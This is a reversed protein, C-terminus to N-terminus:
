LAELRFVLVMRSPDGLVLISGGIFDISHRYEAPIWLLNKNQYMVWAGDESICLSERGNQNFCPLTHLPRKCSLPTTLLPTIDFTGIPTVLGTDSENFSVTSISGDASLTAHCRSTSIDYIKIINSGPTLGRQQSLLVLYQDNSSIAGFSFEHFGLLAIRYGSATDWIEVHACTTTALRKGSPSFFLRRFSYSFYKFALLGLSLFDIAKDDLRFIYCNDGSIFALRRCDSTFAICRDSIAQMDLMLPLPRSMQPNRSNLERHTTATDDDIIDWVQAIKDTSVFALRQGDPSIYHYLYTKEDYDLTMLCQCSKVDWVKLVDRSVMCVREGNNSAFELLIVEYSAKSYGQDKITQGVQSGTETDWVTITVVVPKGDYESPSHFFQGFYRGDSSFKCHHVRETTHITVKELGTAVDRITCTRSSHEWVAIKQNNMSTSSMAYKSERSAWSWSQQVHRLDWLKIINVYESRSALLQCNPPPISIYNTELGILWMRMEMLKTGQLDFVKWEDGKALLISGGDSSFTFLITGWSGRSRSKFRRLSVFLSFGLKRLVSYALSRLQDFPDHTQFGLKHLSGTHFDYLFYEGKLYATEIAVTHGSLSFTAATIAARFKLQKHLRRQNCYTDWIYISGDECMLLVNQTSDPRFTAALVTNDSDFTACCSATTIDWVMTVAWKFGQSSSLLYRRDPSFSFSTELYQKGSNHLVSILAYSGVTVNWIRIVRDQSASALLCGDHSYALSNVTGSNAEFTAWCSYTRIDWIKITGDASASALYQGDPSFIFVNIKDTHGELSTQHGSWYQRRPSELTIWDPQDAEFLKRISSELPSFVLSSYTQLPAKEIAFGFSLAYRHADRVLGELSPEHTELTKQGEGVHVEQVKKWWRRFWRSKPPPALKSIAVRGEALAHILSLAELWYIFKQSIFDYVEEHVQHSDTETDVSIGDELHEVWYVCSYRVQALPDSDPVVVDHISIGAHNLGYINKRLSRSMGALSKLFIILHQKQVGSPFIQNFAQNWLFDKASQHIFYITGNRLTLFSGCLAVARELSAPRNPAGEPLDILTELERM